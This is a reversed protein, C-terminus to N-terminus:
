VTKLLHARLTLRTYTGDAASRLAFRVADTLGIVPAPSEPLAPASTPPKSGNPFFLHYAEIKRMLIGREESNQRAEAELEHLKETWEKLSHETLTVQKMPSDELCASGTHRRINGHVM